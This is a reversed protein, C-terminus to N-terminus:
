KPGDTGGTNSRMIGRLSERVQLFLDRAAQQEEFPVASPSTLLVQFQYQTPNAGTRTRHAEAILKGLPAASLRQAMMRLYVYTDLSTHSLIPPIVNTGQDDFQSFLLFAHAGVSNEMTVEIFAPVSKGHGDQLAARATLIKWGQNRYCVTLDHEGGFPYDFAVIVRQRQADYTWKKGFRGMEFGWDREEFEFKTRKWNGLEAPCTAETVLDTLNSIFMPPRDDIWAAQGLRLQVAGLGLFLMILCAHVPLQPWARRTDGPQTAGIDDAACPVATPVSASMQRGNQQSSAGYDGGTWPSVLRNWCRILGNAPDYGAPIPGWLLTLFSDTSVLLLLAFAFCIAGLLEHQWGTSLDVGFTAHAIALTAIRILNMVGSWVAASVLLLAAHVAPRRAWVVFLVACALLAFLSQVGSCAEEVLLRRGPLEIITGEVVHDIGLAELVLGAAQSTTWQLQQMLRVDLNLPPPIALWLGAWAPWLRAMGRHGTSWIILGWGSGVISIAALWPSYFAVSLALLVLPILLLRPSRVLALESMSKQPWRSWLLWACGLVLLPVFQYHPRLWLGEAFLGLLPLHGALISGTLLWFVPRRRLPQRGSSHKTPELHDAIVRSAQSM